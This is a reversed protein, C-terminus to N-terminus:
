TAKEHKRMICSYKHYHQWLVLFLCVFLYVFILNASNEANVQIQTHLHYDIVNNRSTNLESKYRFEIYHIGFLAYKALKPKREFM